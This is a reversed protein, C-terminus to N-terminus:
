NSRRAPGQLAGQAYYVLIFEPASNQGQIILYVTLILAAVNIAGSILAQCLDFISYTVSLRRTRRDIKRTINEWAKFLYDTIGLFRVEKVTQRNGIVNFYSASWRRESM